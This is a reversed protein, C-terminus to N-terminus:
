LRSGRPKTVPRSSGTPAAIVAQRLGWAQDQPEGIVSGAAASARACTADVNDVFILTVSSVTGFREGGALGIMVVQDGLTLEAHGVTGDPMTVLLAAKLGLVDVLWDIAAAPDAYLVYPVIRPYGRAPDYM